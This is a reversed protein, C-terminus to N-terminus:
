KVVYLGSREKESVPSSKENLYNQIIILAKTYLIMILIHSELKMLDDQFTKLSNLTLYGSSNKIMLFKNQITGLLDKQRKLVDVIGGTKIYGLICDWINKDHHLWERRSQIGLYDFQSLMISYNVNRDLRNIETNLSEIMTVIVGQAKISEDTIKILSERNELSAIEYNNTKTQIEIFHFMIRSTNIQATLVFKKDMEGGGKFFVSGGLIYL